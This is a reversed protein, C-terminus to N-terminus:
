NGGRARAALRYDRDAKMLRDQAEKRSERALRAARRAARTAAREAKQAASMQFFENGRGRFILILLLLLVASVLVKM